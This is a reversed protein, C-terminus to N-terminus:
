LQKSGSIGLGLLELFVVLGLHPLDFIAVFFQAALDLVLLLLVDLRIVTIQSQGVLDGILVLLELVQVGLDLTQHVFYVLDM